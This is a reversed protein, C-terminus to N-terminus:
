LFFFFIGAIHISLEEQRLAEQSTPARSGSALNEGSTPHPLAPPQGRLLARQVRCPPICGPRSQVPAQGTCEGLDGALQIVSAVPLLRTSVSLARPRGGVLVRLFAKPDQTLHWIQGLGSQRMQAERLWSPLM